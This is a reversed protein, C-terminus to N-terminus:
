TSRRVRSPLVVGSIMRHRLRWARSIWRASVMAAGTEGSGAAWVENRRSSGSRWPRAFRQFGLAQAIGVSPSIPKCTRYQVVGGTALGHATMASVVAKGYGRGRYDPHTLGWRCCGIGGGSWCGLRRWCRATLAASCRHGRRTSAATSGPWRVVPPPWGDACGPGPRDAVANGDDTSTSLRRCRCLGALSARHGPRGRGRLGAAAAHRRVGRSTAPARGQQRHDSWDTPVALVCAPPRYMVAAGHFSTLRARQPGGVHTAAGAAGRAALHAAWFWGGGAPEGDDDHQTGRPLHLRLMVSSSRWPLM